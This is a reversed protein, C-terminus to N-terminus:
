PRKRKLPPPWVVSRRRSPGNWGAQIVTTPPDDHLILERICARVSKEFRQRALARSDNKWRDLNEEEIEQEAVVSAAKAHIAAIPQAAEVDYLVGIIETEDETLQNVAYVLGLRAHLARFTALVGAPDVPGGGVSSAGIPFVESVAMQDSVALNWQLFENHPDSFLIPRAGLVHAADEAVAVRAVALSAPFLGPTPNRDAVVFGNVPTPVPQIAIDGWMVRPAPTWVHVPKHACGTVAVALAALFGFGSM